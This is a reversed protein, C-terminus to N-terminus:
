RWTRERGAPPGATPPRVSAGIAPPAAWGWSGLAFDAILVDEAGDKPWVNLSRVGPVDRWPEGALVAEATVAYRGRWLRFSFETWLRPGGWLWCAGLILLVAGLGALLWPRWKRREKKAGTM